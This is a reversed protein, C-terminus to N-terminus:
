QWPFRMWPLIMVFGGPCAPPHCSRGSWLEAVIGDIERPCAHGQLCNSLPGIVAEMFKDPAGIPRPRKEFSISSLSNCSSLYYSCLM